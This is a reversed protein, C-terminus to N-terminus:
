ANMKRGQYVLRGKCARCQRVGGAMVSNHKRLTFHFEKNCPCKYVFDKKVVRVAIISGLEKDDYCRDPPLGIVRMCEKWARGHSWGCHKDDGHSWRNYIVPAVLHCIEHGLVVNLMEHWYKEICADQNLTVTNNHKTAFGLRRGLRPEIKIEPIPMPKKYHSELTALVDLMKNELSKYMERGQPITTNTTM